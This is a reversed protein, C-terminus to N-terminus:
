VSFDYNQTLSLRLREKLLYSHSQGLLGIYSVLQRSAQTTYGSREIQSVIALAKRRLRRRPVLGYPFAVVGLIDIGDKLNKIIIKHDPLDLHLYSSLFEKIDRSLTVLFDKDSSIIYFDDNYRVYHRVGHRQKIFYDLEHLYINAFLQSTLNGLPIGVGEAGNFSRIIHRCLRLYHKDAIKKNLFSLLIMHDVSGFFNKVDGHFVYVERKLNLSDQGIFKMIRAIAAQTGKGLRSSYSDFFFTKDWLPYLVDYLAQHVIRDRVLAKHIPRFKPDRVFFKLYGSHSYNETLLESSLNSIEQALKREFWIVDPRERKGRKFKRWSKYLNEEKVFIDFPTISFYPVFNKQGV